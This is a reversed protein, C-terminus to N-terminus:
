VIQNLPVRQSFVQISAKRQFIFLGLWPPVQPKEMFFSSRSPFLYATVDTEQEINIFGQKKKRDTSNPNMENCAYIDGEGSKYYIHGQAWYVIRENFQDRGGKM